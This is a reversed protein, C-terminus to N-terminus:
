LGNVKAIDVGDVRSFVLVLPAECPRLSCFVVTHIIVYLTAEELDRETAVISRCRSNPRTFGHPM